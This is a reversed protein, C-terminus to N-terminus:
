VSNFPKATLDLPLKEKKIYIIVVVSCACRFIFRCVLPVSAANGRQVVVSIKNTGPKVVLIYIM